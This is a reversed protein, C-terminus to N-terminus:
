PAPAAHMANDDAILFPKWYWLVTKKRNLEPDFTYAICLAVSVNKTEHTQSNKVPKLDINDGTNM